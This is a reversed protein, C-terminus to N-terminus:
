IRNKIINNYNAKVDNCWKDHNPPCYSVSVNSLPKSIDSFKSGDKARVKEYKTITSCAGKLSEEFSPFSGDKKKLKDIGKAGENFHYSFPNKQNEIKYKSSGFGSEAQMISLMMVPNVNNEKCIKLFVEGKGAYPSNYHKLVKDIQAATATNTNHFSAQSDLGSAHASPQAATTSSVQNPKAPQTTKSPTGFSVSKPATDHAQVKTGAHVDKPSTQQPTAEPTDSPKAGSNQKPPNVPIGLTRELNVPIGQSTAPRAADM